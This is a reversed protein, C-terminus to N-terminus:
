LKSNLKGPLPVFIQNGLNIARYGEVFRWGAREIGKQSAINEKTTYEWAGLYGLQQHERLIQCKVYLNINHGRAWEAVRVHYSIFEKPKIAIRRGARQIKHVGTTQIWQYHAIRGGIFLAYCKDGRTLRHRMRNLNVPWVERLLHVDEHGIRKLIFDNLDLEVHPIHRLDHFYNYVIEVTPRTRLLSIYRLIFPRMM